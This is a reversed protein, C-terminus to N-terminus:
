SQAIVAIAFKGHDIVKVIEEAHFMAKAAAVPNDAYRAKAFGRWDDREDRAVWCDCHHQFHERAITVKYTASM